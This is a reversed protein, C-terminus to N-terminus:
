GNTKEIDDQNVKTAPSEERDSIGQEALIQAAEEESLGVAQTPHNWGAVSRKTKRGYFKQSSDTSRHGMMDALGRRGTGSAKANAAFQHRTSYLTYPYGGIIHRIRNMRYVMGKQIDPWRIGVSFLRDREQLLEKAEQIIKKDAFILRCDGNGRIENTKKNHILLSEKHNVLVVQLDELESPRIGVQVNWQLFRWLIGDFSGKYNKRDRLEVIYKELDEPPFLKVRRKKGNRGEKELWEKRPYPLNRLEDLLEKPAGEKELVYALSLRNLRFYTIRWSAAKASLWPLIAM